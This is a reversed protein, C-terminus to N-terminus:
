RLQLKQLTELTIAGSALRSDEQFRTVATRTKPGLVGDPTGEYYGRQQLKEQLVVIDDQGVANECLAPMQRFTEDRVKKQSPLSQQRSETRSTVLKAPEDVRALPISAYVAPIEKRVVKAPEVLVKRTVTRTKAPIIKKVTRAPQDIVERTVETYEAPVKILCTAPVDLQNASVVAPCNPNWRMTADKVKVRKTETRYTAAITEVEVREREVEIEETVEKFVAPIIEYEVYADAVKVKREGYGMKVPTTTYNTTGEYVTVTETSAQYQAPLIVQSMCVKSQEATAQGAVFVSTLALALGLTSPLLLRTNKNM